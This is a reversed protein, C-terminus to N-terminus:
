GWVGFVGFDSFGGVKLPGQGSRWGGRVVGEVRYFRKKGLFLQGRSRGWFPLKNGSNLMCGM